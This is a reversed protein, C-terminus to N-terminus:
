VHVKTTPVTLVVVETRFFKKGRRLKFVIHEANMTM